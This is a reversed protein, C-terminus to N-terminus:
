CRASCIERGSAGLMRCDSVRTQAIQFM